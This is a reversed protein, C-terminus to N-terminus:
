LHRTRSPPADLLQSHRLLNVLPVSKSAYQERGLSINHSRGSLVDLELTSGICSSSQCIVMAEAGSTTEEERQDLHHWSVFANVTVSSCGIEHTVRASLRTKVM